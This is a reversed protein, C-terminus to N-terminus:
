ARGHVLWEDAESCKVDRKSTATQGALYLAMEEDTPDRWRLAVLTGGEEGAEVDGMECEGVWLGGTEPPEGSDALMDGFEEPTMGDWAERVPGTAALLCWPWASGILGAESEDTEGTTCAILM